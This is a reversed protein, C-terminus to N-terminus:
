YYDGKISPRRLGILCTTRGATAVFKGFFLTCLRWDYLTFRYGLDNQSMGLYLIVLPFCLAWVVIM